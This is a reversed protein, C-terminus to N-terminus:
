RNYNNESNDRKRYFDYPKNMKKIFYDDTTLSRASYLCEIVAEIGKNRRIEDIDNNDPLKVIKVCDECDIYISYLQYYLDLSNSYADPDLLVVVKPKHEKLKLFLKKSIVKGLMPITNVPFSLADFVGEVLYITSSWDIYGENFIISTKNAKPNDYPPIKKKKIDKEYTRAVFYNVDGNVNYSPIIIRKAYKGSVCFGLRFKLILDRSIKRDFILYNYAEIHDGNLPNMQSFLIMEDPLSIIVEVDEDFEANDGDNWFYDNDTGGYAKYMEYDIKTGYYKILKSLNGSFKPEDCKWCRFKKKATNIELNFKGDPTDSDEREMCRPCNVQIQESQLYGRVEGFIGRIISHFEGGKIM